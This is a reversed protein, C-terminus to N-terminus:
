ISTLFCKTPRCVAFWGSQQPGVILPLQVKVVPKNTTSGAKNNTVLSAITRSSTGAMSYQPQNVFFDLWGGFLLNSWGNTNRKDPRKDSSGHECITQECLSVIRM